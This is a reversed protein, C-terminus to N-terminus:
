EAAVQVRSVAGAYIDQMLARIDYRYRWEPYAAQFKRTDSIWWIHDGVRNDPSYSTSMARGTMEEAIAIAELMSCNSHRGGGINFVEGALPRQFFCWFAEVLDTSHINDRVQKGSYGFVTYPTGNVACKVLYALFGHLQAGSHGPGTLCGGRFCGTKMGFYRGYEQVMVDAAVKSAGFVSHLCNDISMQEPFGHEAWEHAPSLEFRTDREILPLHNPQDGYVKNTSVFIFVADPAHRRTAELLTLTGNANVTFDTMPDRAAWDHSPQAACHIIVKIDRGYEAFVREMADADRIDASVHTYYSQGKLEQVQWRTSAEVGFFQSRMDNDIGVVDLGREGFLRTAAAGVLGGSGTVIAISM